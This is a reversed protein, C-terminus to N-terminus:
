LKVSCFGGKPNHKWLGVTQVFQGLAAENSASETSLLDMKAFTNQDAMRNRKDEVELGLANPIAEKLSLSKSSLQSETM